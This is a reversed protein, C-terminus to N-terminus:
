PPRNWHPMADQELLASAVVYRAPARVGDVADHNVVRRGQRRGAVVRDVERVVLPLTGGGVLEHVVDGVLKVLAHGLSAGGLVDADLDHASALVVALDLHALEGLEHARQHVAVTNGLVADDAM